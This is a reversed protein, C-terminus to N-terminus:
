EEHQKQIHEGNKCSNGYDSNWIKFNLALSNPDLTVPKWLPLTTNFKKKRKSKGLKVLDTSFFNQGWDM